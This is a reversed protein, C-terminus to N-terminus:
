LYLSAAFAIDKKLKVIGESVKNELETNGVAKAASVLQRLLEELRRFTRIISGEFVDTMACIDAFTAGQCWALVVDMLDPKFKKVYLEVDVDIKSEKAVTSVRRAIDQLQRLPGALDNKCKVNTESKEEFVFCSMLAV